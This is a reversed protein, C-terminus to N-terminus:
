RRISALGGNNMLPNGYSDINPRVPAYQAYQPAYVQPAQLVQQTVERPQINQQTSQNNLGIARAFEPNNKAIAGFIGGMPGKAGIGPQQNPQQYPMGLGKMNSFTNVPNETQYSPANTSVPGAWQRATDTYTFNNPQPQNKGNILEEARNRIVGFAGNSPGSTGGSAMQQVFQGQNSMATNPMNPEVAAYTSPNHGPHGQVNFTQPAYPNTGFQPSTSPYMGPYSQKPQGQTLTNAPLMTSYDNANMTNQNQIRNNDANINMNYPSQDNPVPAVPNYSAPPNNVGIPQYTPQGSTAPGKGQQPLKQQPQTGQASSAM